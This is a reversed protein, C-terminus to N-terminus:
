NATNAFSQVITQFCMLMIMEHHVVSLGDRGEHVSSFLLFLGLATAATLAFRMKQLLYHFVCVCVAEKLKGAM